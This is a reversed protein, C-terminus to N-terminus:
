PDALVSVFVRLGRVRDGDPLRRVEITAPTHVVWPATAAEVRYSGPALGFIVFGGDSFTTVRHRRGGDTASLTLAFAPVPVTSDADVRRQVVGEVIGGSLVPLDVRRVSNPTPEVELGALAPVWLPSELTLADLEVRVPEFPLVDWVHYWGGADTSATAAGVRVSVGALPMEDPGLVGDGDLDLFVRGGVGGRLLLPGRVAGIARRPADVYAAGQM